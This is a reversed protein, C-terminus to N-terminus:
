QPRGSHDHQHFSVSCNYNADGVINTSGDAPSVCAGVVWPVM